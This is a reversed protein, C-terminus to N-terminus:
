SAEWPLRTAPASWLLWPFRAVPTYGLDSVRQRGYRLGFFCPYSKSQTEDGMLKGEWRTNQKLSRPSVALYDM